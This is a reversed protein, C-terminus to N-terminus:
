TANQAFGIIDMQTGQAVKKMQHTMCHGGVSKVIIMIGVRKKTNLQIRTTNKVEINPQNTVPNILWCLVQHGNKNKGNSNKANRSKRLSINLNGNM